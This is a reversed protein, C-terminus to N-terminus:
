NKFFFFFVVVFLFDSTPIYNLAPTGSSGTPHQSTPARVYPPHPRHQNSAQKCRTPPNADTLTLTKFLNGM